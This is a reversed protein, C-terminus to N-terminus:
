CSKSNSKMESIKLNMKDLIKNIRLLLEQGRRFIWEEITQDKDMCKSIYVASTYVGLIHYDDQYIFSIDENRDITDMTVDEMPFYQFGLLLLYFEYPDTLTEMLFRTNDIEQPSDWNLDDTIFSLLWKNMDKNSIVKEIIKRLEIIKTPFNSIEIKQSIALFASLTSPFLLMPETKEILLGSVSKLDNIANQLNSKLSNFQEIDIDKISDNQDKKNSLCVGIKLLKKLVSIALKSYSELDKRNVTIGNGQHYLKNRIGHYFEVHALDQSSILSTCKKLGDILNHFNGSAFKKREFFPLNVKTICEPLTLYTKFIAEILVDFLLFSIRNDVETDKELLNLAYECLEAPGTQWPHKAKQM